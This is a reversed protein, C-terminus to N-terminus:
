PRKAGKPAQLPPRRADQQESGSSRELLKAQAKEASTIPKARFGKWSAEMGHVTIVAAMGHSKTGDNMDWTITDAPGPNLYFSRMPTSPKILTTGPLDTARAGAEKIHSFAGFAINGELLARSLQADGVNGGAIAYDLAQSGEGKPPGHAILIVPKKAEKALEVVEDVTSQYYRCGTACHTYNPDHYGPLSVVTAEPFEVARIRNMNVVNSFEKQAAAVGDSFESQCERNGAIVLVPVGAGGLVKLVRSIGEAIEGVDGTVAIADVKEDAFFKLYKKMVLLNRGSDENIPGLVGLKLQGRPARDKLSVKYGTSTAPKDGIKVESVPQAELPAACEKSARPEPPAPPVKPAEAAAPKVEPQSPASEHACSTLMLLCAASALISCLTRHREARAPKPRGRSEAESREPRAPQESRRDRAYDLPEPHAPQLPEM